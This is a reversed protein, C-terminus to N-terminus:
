GAPPITECTEGIVQALTQGVVEAYTAPEEISGSVQFNEFLELFQWLSDNVGVICEDVIASAVVCAEGGCGAKAQMVMDHYAAAGEPSKDPEDTLVVIVLVAGEDRLFGANHAANDPHVAYGAAASMMEFSCGTEGAAVAAASFWTKLEAPDDGVIAEFYRRGDHEFLRGQEGNTGTNGESPTIYHSDIASQSAQTQCNFEFESCSGTYFSTTTMGVHLDTGVPLNNWMADVFSPWALALQTQYENMSLSNDIVFLLDVFNCYDQEGRTTTEPGGVDLKIPDGTADQAETTSDAGGSGTAGPTVGDDPGATDSGPGSDTAMPTTPGFPNEDRPGTSCAALLAIVLTSRAGVIFFDM